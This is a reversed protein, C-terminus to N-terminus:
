WPSVNVWEVSFSGRATMRITRRFMPAPFDDLSVKDLARTVQSLAESIQRCPVCGFRNLFRVTDRAILRTYASGRVTSAQRAAMVLPEVAGPGITLIFLRAPRGGKAGPRLYTWNGIGADVLAELRSRADAAHRCTALSRSLERVSVRGGRKQIFALLKIDFLAPPPAHGASFVNGRSSAKSM